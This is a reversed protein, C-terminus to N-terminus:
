KQARRGPNSAPSFDNQGAEGKDRGRLRDKVRAANRQEGIDVVVQINGDAVEIPQQVLIRVHARDNRNV